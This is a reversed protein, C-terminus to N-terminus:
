RRANASKRSTKKKPKTVEDYAERVLGPLERADIHDLFLRAWRIAGWIAPKFAKPRSDFLVEQHLKPLKFIAENKESIEVFIRGEFRFSPVGFHSQEEVGPLALALKRIEDVATVKKKAAGPVSTKVPKKRATKPPPLNHTWAERILADLEKKSVRDIQVIVNATKGWMYKVFTMKDAAFLFETREDPLNLYLGDPRMVAFIRKATRWAPRAFHDIETVGELSLASKRVDAPSPM